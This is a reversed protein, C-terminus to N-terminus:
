ISVPDAETITYEIEYTLTVAYVDQDDEHIQFDTAILRFDIVGDPASLASEVALAAADLDKEPKENDQAGRMWIVIPVTLVRVCQRPANHITQAENVEADAFLTIAPYANRVPSVRQIWVGGFDPLTKLQTKLAELLQRRRHM